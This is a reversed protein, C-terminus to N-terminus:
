CVSKGKKRNCRECLLQINRETNSGGEALPIIHDFELNERSGCESCKGEDRQWVFLRVKEPIKERRASPLKELNEFAENTRRMRGLEGEKKLVWHRIHVLLEEPFLGSANKVILIRNRFIWFNRVVRQLEEKEGEEWGTQLHCDGLRIPEKLQYELQERSLQGNWKGFGLNLSFSGDTANDMTAVLSISPGTM